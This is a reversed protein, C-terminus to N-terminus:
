FKIRRIDAREGRRAKARRADDLAGIGWELLAIGACGLVIGAVALAAATLV